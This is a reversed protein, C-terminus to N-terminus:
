AFRRVMQLLLDEFGETDSIVHTAHAKSPEVFQDHMPKVQNIFQKHVGEPTRGREEIDRKLRREYRLSEPTDVFISACVVDLIKPQSLLLIGDVIVLPRPSLPTTTQLRTHTVFDYQPVQIMHGIKLEKLHQALLDFDISDPHDFNVSGGDGDFRHSQDIYYHDQALICARDEGVAEYLKRAFTTKGSGSGGAVALISCSPPFRTM